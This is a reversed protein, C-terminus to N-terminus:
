DQLVGPPLGLDEEILALVKGDFSSALTKAAADVEASSAKGRKTQGRKPKPKVEEVEEMPAVAARKGDPSRLLGNVVGTGPHARSAVLLWEEGAVVVPKDGHSTADAPVSAVYALDIELLPM